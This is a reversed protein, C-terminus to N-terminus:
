AMGEELASIYPADCAHGRSRITNIAVILRLRSKVVPSPHDGITTARPDSFELAAASERNNPVIKGIAYKPSYEWIGANTLGWASGAGASEYNIHYRSFSSIRYSFLAGRKQSSHYASQPGAPIRGTRM